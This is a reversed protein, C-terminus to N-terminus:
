LILFILLVLYNSPFASLMGICLGINKKPLNVKKRVGLGLIGFLSKIM